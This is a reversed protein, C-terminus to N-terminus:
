EKIFEFVAVMNGEKNAFIRVLKLKLPLLTNTIKEYHKKHTKLAILDDSSWKPITLNDSVDWKYFKKGAYYSLQSNNTYLKSQQPANHQVWTGASVIYAKSQKPPIFAYVFMILFALTLVPFLLNDKLIAKNDLWKQLIHHLSFPIWLLLLLSAPM